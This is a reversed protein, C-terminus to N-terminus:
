GAGGAAAGADAVWRLLAGDISVVRGFVVWGVGYVLGLDSEVTTIREVVLPATGPGGLMVDAAIFEGPELQAADTRVDDSSWVLALLPGAPVALGAAPAEARILRM